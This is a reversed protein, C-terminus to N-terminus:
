LDWLSSCSSLPSARFEVQFSYDREAWNSLLPLSGFASGPGLKRDERLRFCDSPTSLIDAADALKARARRRHM